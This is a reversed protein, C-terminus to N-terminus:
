HWYPGRAGTNEAWPRREVWLLRHGGEMLGQQRRREGRDPILLCEVHCEVGGADGVLRGVGGFPEQVSTGVIVHGGVSTIEMRGAGEIRGDDNSVTIAQRDCM